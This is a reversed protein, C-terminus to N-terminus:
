NIHMVDFFVIKGGVIYLRKLGHKKCNHLKKMIISDRNREGKLESNSNTAITEKVLHRAFQKDLSFAAFSRGVWAMSVLQM